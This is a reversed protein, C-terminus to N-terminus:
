AVGHYLFDYMDQRYKKSQEVCHIHVQRVEEEHAACLYHHKSDNGISYREVIHGECEINSFGGEDFFCKREGSLHPRLIEREYAIFADLLAKHADHEEDTDGCGVMEFLTDYTEQLRDFDRSPLYQRLADRLEHGFMTDVNSSM